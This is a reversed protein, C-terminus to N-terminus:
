SAALTDRLEGSIAVFELDATGLLGDHLHIASPVNAVKPTAMTTLSLKDELAITSSTVSDAWSTASDSAAAMDDVITKGCDEANFGDSRGPSICATLPVSLALTSGCGAGM